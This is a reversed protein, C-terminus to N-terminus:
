YKHPTIELIEIQGKVREQYILRFQQGLRVSRQGLRDGHLPEDHLGPRKRVEQLGLTQVAKQWDEFRRAVAPNSQEIENVNRVARRDKYAIFTKQEGTPITPADRDMARVPFDEPNGRRATTETHRRISRAQARLDSGARRDPVRTLKEAVRSEFALWADPDQNGRTRAERILQSIDDYVSCSGLATDATDVLTEGADSRPIALSVFALLFPLALKLARM